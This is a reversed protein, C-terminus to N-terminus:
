NWSNKKLNTCNELLPTSSCKEGLTIPLYFPEKLSAFLTSFIYLDVFNTELILSVQPHSMTSRLNEIKAGQNALSCHRVALWVESVIHL